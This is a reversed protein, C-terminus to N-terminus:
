TKNPLPLIDIDPSNVAGPNLNGCRQGVKLIGIDSGRSTLM